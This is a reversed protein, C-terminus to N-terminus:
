KFSQGAKRTSDIYRCSSHISIPDRSNKMKRIDELIKDVKREDEIISSSYCSNERYFSISQRSDSNIKKMSLQKEYPLSSSLYTQSRSVPELNKGYHSSHTMKEQTEAQRYDFDKPPYQHKARYYAEAEIKHTIEEVTESFM